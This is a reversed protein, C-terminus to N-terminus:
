LTILIHNLLYYHYFNVQTSDDPFIYDFKFTKPKENENGPKHLAIVNEERIISAINQNGQSIEKKSLPRVRIFVRVNETEDKNEANKSAMNKILRYIHLFGIIM